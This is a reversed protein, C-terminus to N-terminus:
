TPEVIRAIVMSRFVVDTVPAFGLDAFVRALVQFLVDSGTAVVRAPTVAQRDARGPADQRTFLAEGGREASGVLEAKVSAPTLGLEFEGQGPGELLEQAQLMLLGLEAETHASGVHAVIRRRGNVYDAVQM